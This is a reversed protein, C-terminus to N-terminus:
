QSNQLDRKLALLGLQSLGGFNQEFLKTLREQNESARVVIPQGTGLEYKKSSAELILLAIMETLAPEECFTAFDFKFSHKNM